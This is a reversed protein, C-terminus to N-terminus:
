FNFGVNHCPLRNKTEFLESKKSSIELFSKSDRTHGMPSTESLCWLSFYYPATTTHTLTYTLSLSIFFLSAFHYASQSVWLSLSLSLYLSLSLSISLYLSLSISLSLYLFLSLSLCLSLSVSLSLSLSLPPPSSSSRTPTMDFKINKKNSFITVNIKPECCSPVRVPCALTYSNSEVIQLNCKLLFM